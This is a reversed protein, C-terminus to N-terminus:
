GNIINEDEYEIGNESINKAKHVEINKQSENKLLNAFLIVDDESAVVDKNLSAIENGVMTLPYIGIEITEEKQENVEINDILFNKHILIFNFGKQNKFNLTISSDNYILGLESLTMIEKYKIDCKKLYEKYTPLFLEQGNYITHSCIKIFM